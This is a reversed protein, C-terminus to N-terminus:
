PQESAPMFRASSIDRGHLFSPVAGMFFGRMAAPSEESLM